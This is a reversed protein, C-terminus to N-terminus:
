PSDKLIKHINDISKRLNMDEVPKDRVDTGSLRSIANIAYYSNRQLYEEPGAAYQDMIATLTPIVTPDGVHGILETYRECVWWYFKRNVYLKWGTIFRNSAWHRDDSTLLHPAFRLPAVARKAMEVSAQPKVYLYSDLSGSYGAWDYDVLENGGRLLKLAVWFDGSTGWFSNTQKPKLRASSVVAIQDLLKRYAVRSMNAESVSVKFSDSPWKTKQTEWGESLNYLIVAVNKKSPLFRYWQLNGGHGSGFGIEISSEISYSAKSVWSVSYDKSHFKNKISSVSQGSSSSFGLTLVVILLLPWRM